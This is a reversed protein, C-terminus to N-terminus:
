MYKQRKVFRWLVAAVPYLLYGSKRLLRLSIKRNASYAAPCERRVKMEARFIEAKARKGIPMCLAIQIQNAEMKAIGRALYSLITVTDGAAARKQYYHILSCLIKFHQEKNKQMNKVSVSQSENGLRYQYVAYDLICITSIWPIPFLIYQMDVYYSFESLKIGHDKLIATKITYEHMRIHLEGAAKQFSIVRGKPLHDAGEIKRKQVVIKNQQLRVCCFPTAVLDCDIKQISELFKHYQTPEVADDSDIVKFYKGTAAAIGVNIASGHGGNDKHIVDIIGPFKQKYGDAIAATADQSGDDIILLETQNAWQTQLLSDLCDALVREANYAPIVVSLLKSENTQM